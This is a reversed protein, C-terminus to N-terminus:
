RKPACNIFNLFSKPMPRRPWCENWPSDGSGMTCSECAIDCRTPDERLRVLRAMQAGSRQERNGVGQERGKVGAAAGRKEEKKEVVPGHTEATPPPPADGIRKSYTCVVKNEEAPRRAGSEERAEEACGRGRREEEQEPVGPLRGVEADEGGSVPQRVQPVEEGGAESEVHLRVQSLEHLGLLCQGAAGQARGPRGRRVQPM